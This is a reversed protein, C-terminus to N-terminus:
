WRQVRLRGSVPEAAPSGQATMNGEFNLEIFERDYRTVNVRVTDTGGQQYPVGDAELLVQMPGAAFQHPLTDNLEFSVADTVVGDNGKVMWINTKTGNIGITLSDPPFTMGYNREGIRFAIFQMAPADDNCATIEGADVDSGVLQIAAPTSNKGTAGSVAHILGETSGGCYNVAVSFAGDKVEGNYYLGQLFVKVFGSEVALGNCDLVTGHVTIANEPEVTLLGLDKDGQLAAQGSSALVHGCKDLVEVRLPSAKPVWTRLAGTSDTHTIGTSGNRLNTIRVTAYGYPNAQNDEVKLTVYVFDTPVDLNWYSFHSVTGSYSDGTRVAMGEERWKGSTEDFHWLPITAPANGVMSEAISMTITAPKGAALQLKEGSASELSVVVMGYSTLAKEIHNSDIGRLDGPMISHFNEEEPDITAAFVKVTGSYPKGSATVFGGPAFKVLTKSSASIMAGDIANFSGKLKKEMLQIEVYNMGGSKSIVSRSGQFYGEKEATVFGFSESVTVDDIRFVGYEDTSVMRGGAKVSVGALPLGAENMVVGQFSTSVTNDPIEVFPLSDVPIAPELETDVNKQCAWVLCFLVAVPLLRIISKKM